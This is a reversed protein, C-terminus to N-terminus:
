WVKGGPDEDPVEKVEVVIIDSKPLIQNLVTTLRDGVERATYNTIPSLKVECTM